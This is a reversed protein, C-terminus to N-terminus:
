SGGSSGSSQRTPKKKGKYKLKRAELDGISFSLVVPTVYASSILIKKLFSRRGEDFDELLGNEACSESANRTQKSKKYQKNLNKDKSM